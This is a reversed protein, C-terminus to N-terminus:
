PNKNSAFDILKVTIQKPKSEGDQIVTVSILDDFDHSDLIHRIDEVGKVSINDIKIIIMGPEIGAKEAGSEPEVEVVIFGRPINYNASDEASVDYGKIGLYIKGDDFSQNEEVQVEANQQTGEPTEQIQEPQTELVPDQTPAEQPQTIQPENNDITPPANEAVGNNPITEPVPQPQMTEPNIPEFSWYMNPNQVTNEEATTAADPNHECIDDDFMEKCGRGYIYDHRHCADFELKELLIDRDHKAIVGQCIQGCLLAVALLSVVTTTIVSSTKITKVDLKIDINASQIETEKKNEQNQNM